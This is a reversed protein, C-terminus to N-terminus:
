KEKVMLKNLQQVREQHPPHFPDVKKDHPGFMTIVQILEVGYGHEQALKDANFEHKYSIWEFLAWLGATIFLAGIERWTLFYLAPICVLLLMLVRQEFHYNICHYSEHTMTAMQQRTNLKCFLPGIVIHKRLLGRAEALHQFTEDYRVPIGKFGIETFHSPSKM